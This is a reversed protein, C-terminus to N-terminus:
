RSRQKRKFQKNEDTLAVIQKRLVEKEKEQAEIEKVQTQILGVEPGEHTETPFHLDRLKKTEEYQERMQASLTQITTEMNSIKKQTEESLKIEKEDEAKKEEELRHVQARLSEVEEEDIQHFPRGSSMIQLYPLAKLYEERYFKEDQWAKNYDLPDIMHGMMFEGVEGKAPSKAWQSRFLDRLEHLNKGTRGRIGANRPGIRLRKLKRRWYIQMNFYNFATGDESLFISKVKSDTPRKEMWKRLADLADGGIFSYFIRENEEGKRGPLDIKIVEPNKRLDDRLKELGNNSWHLLEHAGLGGQLMSLYTAQHAEDCYGIIRKVEEVTLDGRTPPKDGRIKFSRDRPLEARNHLFFSRLYTYRTTKSTKRLGNLSLIYKQVLDVLDFKHSNDANRSYEVLQDPSYDEFQGGNQKLWRMFLSLHRRAMVGTYPKLRGVWNEVSINGTQEGMKVM